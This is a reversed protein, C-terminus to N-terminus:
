KREPYNDLCVYKVYNKPDNQDNDSNDIQVNTQHRLDNETLTFGSNSRRANFETRSSVIVLPDIYKANELVQKSKMFDKFFLEAFVSITQSCSKCCDRNTHILLVVRDIKQNKLLKSTLDDYNKTLVGDSILRFILWQESHYYKNKFKEENYLGFNLDLDSLQATSYSLDVCHNTGDHDEQFLELLAKISKIFM